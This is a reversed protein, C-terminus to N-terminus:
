SSIFSIVSNLHHQSVKAQLNVVSHFGPYINEYGSHGNNLKLLENLFRGCLEFLADQSYKFEIGPAYDTNNIIEIFSPKSLISNLGGQTQCYSTKSKLNNEYINNLRIFDENPESEKLKDRYFKERKIIKNKFIQIQFILNDILQYLGVSNSDDDKFPIIQDDSQTFLNKNFKYIDSLTNPSTSTSITNTTFNSLTIGSINNTTNGTITSNFDQRVIIQDSSSNNIATFDIYSNISSFLNTVTTSLDNGKNFERITDNLSSTIANGSVMTFTVATTGKYLVINLNSTSNDGNDVTLNGGMYAHSSCQYYIPTTTGSTIVIQTYAGSSGPTGDTTVGTTYEGGSKDASTYFRLPHSGGGTETGNNSNHSQDFRYTGPPLNLTPSELGGLYYAYQSGGSQSHYPHSSTKSAVIVDFTETNETNRTLDGGMYNHSLCQYYIPTTTTSTIEIQTYAGSSGPTGATTVSTTYEGGSKDASTYFRLPHTNNTADSQDFRYTGPPLNLTPSELGGLYYAYQSGGSQSHYPHLSTKSAVTVNIIITPGFTTAPPNNDSQFANTYTITSESIDSSGTTNIISNKNISGFSGNKKLNHLQKIFDLKKINKNSGTTVKNKVSNLHHTSINNSANEQKFSGPHNQESGIHNYNLKIFEYTMKGFFDFLSDESYKKVPLGNQDYGAILIALRNNGSNIFGRNATISKSETNAIFQTYRLSTFNEIPLQIGKTFFSINDIIIGDTNPQTVNITKSTKNIVAQFISKSNIANKLNEATNDADTEVLFETCNDTSNTYYKNNSNQDSGSLSNSLVFKFEGSIRVDNSDYVTPTQLSIFNNNKNNDDLDKNDIGFFDTGNKLDDNYIIQCKLNTSSASGDINNSLDFESSEEAAPAKRLVDYLQKERNKISYRNVSTTYYKDKTINVGIRRTVKDRNKIELLQKIMSDIVQYLGTNSINIAGASDSSFLSRDKKVSGENISNEGKLHLNNLSKIIQSKKIDTTM